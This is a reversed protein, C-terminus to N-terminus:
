DDDLGLLLFNDDISRSGIMGKLSSCMMTDSSISEQISTNKSSNRQADEFLIIDEEISEEVLEVMNNNIVRVSEMVFKPFESYGEIEEPIEEMGFLFREYEDM